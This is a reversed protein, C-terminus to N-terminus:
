KKPRSGAAQRKGHGTVPLIPRDAPPGPTEVLRSERSSSKDERRVKKVNPSRKLQSGSDVDMAGEADRKKGDGLKHRYLKACFDLTPKQIESLKTRESGTGDIIPCKSSLHLLENRAQEYHVPKTKPSKGCSILIAHCRDLSDIMKYYKTNKFTDLTKGSKCHFPDRKIVTMAVEHDNTEIFPATLVTGTRFETFSMPAKADVPSLHLKGDPKVITRTNLIKNIKHFYPVLETYGLKYSLGTDSKVSNIARNSVIWGGPFATNRASCILSLAGKLLMTSYSNSKDSLGTRANFVSRLMSTNFVDVKKGKPPTRRRLYNLKRNLFHISALLGPLNGKYDGLTIIEGPFAGSPMAASSILEEILKVHVAEFNLTTGHTKDMHYAISGPAVGLTYHLLTALLQFNRKSLTDKEDLAPLTIIVSKETASMNYMNVLPTKYKDSIKVEKVLKALMEDLPAPKRQSFLLLKVVIRDTSGTTVLEEANQVFKGINTRVYLRAEELISLITGSLDCALLDTISNEM